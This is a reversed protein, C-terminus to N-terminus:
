ASTGDIGCCEARVESNASNLSCCSVNLTMLIAPRRVWQAPLHWEAWFGRVEASLCLRHGVLRNIYLRLESQTVATIEPFLKWAM